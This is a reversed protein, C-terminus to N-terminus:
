GGRIDKSLTLSFVTWVGYDGSMVSNTLIIEINFKLFLFRHSWMWHGFSDTEENNFIGGTSFEVRNSSGIDIFFVPSSGFESFSEVISWKGESLHLGGISSISSVDSHGGDGSGRDINENFFFGGTIRFGVM